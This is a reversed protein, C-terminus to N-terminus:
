GLSETLVCGHLSTRESDYGTISKPSKSTVSLSSFRLDTLCPITLPLDSSGEPIINDIGTIRIRNQQHVLLLFGPRCSTIIQDM